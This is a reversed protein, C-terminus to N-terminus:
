AEWLSQSWVTLKLYSQATVLLIFVTVNLVRTIVLTHEETFTLLLPSISVLSVHDIIVKQDM